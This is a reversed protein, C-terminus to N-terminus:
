SSAKYFFEGFLQTTNNIDATTLPTNNDAAAAKLGAIDLVTSNNSVNGLVSIWNVALVRFRLHATGGSNDGSPTTFTTFPLGQLQCNSTITGKASLVIGFSCWVWLGSKVYYGEQTAYTQGSTGGSGGLVPLFTGYRNSGDSFEWGNAASNIRPTQYATGAALRALQAAGSAYIFDLAAQSAISMGGAYIAVPNSVVNQNWIAATIFDGTVQVTPTSWAM